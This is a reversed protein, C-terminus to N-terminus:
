GQPYTPVMGPRYNWSKLPRGEALNRLEREWIKRLLFVGRDSRGLYENGRVAIRGQGTQAIEDELMVFDIRQPDVDSLRLKGALIRRVLEARDAEAQSRLARREEIWARGREGTLAIARDEFRPYRPPPLPQVCQGAGDYKWGHYFCRLCDEEVWGPSLQTGRHACRNGVLHVTDRWSAAFKAVLRYITWSDERSRPVGSTILNGDSNRFPSIM